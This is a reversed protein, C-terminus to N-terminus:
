WDLYLLGLFVYDVFFEFYDRKLLLSFFDFKMVCFFYRSIVKPLTILLLRAAGHLEVHCGSFYMYFLYDM